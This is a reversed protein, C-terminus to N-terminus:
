AKKAVLILRPSSISYEELDYGGFVRVIKMGSEEMIMKWMPVVPYPITTKSIKDKLEMKAPDFVLDAEARRKLSKVLRFVNDADILLFGSKKLNKSISKVAKPLDIGAFDSFFWYAKDYKRKLSLKEVNSRYFIGKKNINKRALGLLFKSADTGNVDYGKDLFAKVHRGQGCAVDLISDKGKKINIAKILFRIDKEEDASYLFDAHEKLYMGDKEYYKAVQISAM